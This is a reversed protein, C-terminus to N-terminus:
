FVHIEMGDHTTVNIVKEGNLTREHYEQQYAVWKENNLDYISLLDCGQGLLHEMFVVYNNEEIWFCENFMYNMDIDFDLELVEEGKEIDYVCHHGEKWGGKHVVFLNTSNDVPYIMDYVTPVIEKGQVNIIGWQENECWYKNDEDVTWEGRCVRAKGDYFNTAYVYKPEIIVNMDYDIWGWMGASGMMKHYYKVDIEGLTSVMILNDSLGGCAPYIHFQTESFETPIQKMIKEADNYLFMERTEENRGIKWGTEEDENWVFLEVNKFNIEHM